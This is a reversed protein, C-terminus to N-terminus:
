DYKLKGEKVLREREFLMDPSYYLTPNEKRMKRYYEKTKENENVNAFSSTNITSTKIDLDKKTPQVGSQELGVLKFFATPSETATRELVAPSIGLENAKSSIFEIAKDKGFAKILASEVVSKNNNIQKQLEANELEKRVLSSIDIQPAKEQPNPEKKLSERAERLENLLTEMTSQEQMKQKLSEVETKLQNIYEDSDVKGRALDEATKFKKGEGVLNDFLGQNTNPAQKNQQDSNASSNNNFVSENQNVTM